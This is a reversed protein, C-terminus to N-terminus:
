DRDGDPLVIRHWISINQRDTEYIVNTTSSKALDLLLDEATLKDV